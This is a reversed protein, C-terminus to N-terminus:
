FSGYGGAEEIMDEYSGPKTVQQQTELDNNQYFTPRPQQTRNM